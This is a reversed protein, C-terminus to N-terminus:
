RPGRAQTALPSAGVPASGNGENRLRFSTHGLDEGVIGPSVPSSMGSSANVDPIAAVVGLIAVSANSAVTGPKLESTMISGLNEVSENSGLKSVQSPGRLAFHRKSSQFKGCAKRPNFPLCKVECGTFTCMTASCSVHNSYCLGMGSDIDVIQSCFKAADYCDSSRPDISHAQGGPHACCLIADCLRPQLVVLSLVCHRSLSRM